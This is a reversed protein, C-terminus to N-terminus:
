KEEIININNEVIGTMANIYITELKGDLQYVIQWVPTLVQILSPKAQGQYGLNILRIRANEKILQNNIITQVASYAPIVQRDSGKNMVELYSQSYGLITNDKLYIELKSDFYPKNNNIQYYSIRSEDSNTPNYTYQDFFNIYKEIKAEIVSRQFPEELLLPQYFKFYIKGEDLVFAGEPTEKETFKFDKNKVQLFQMDPIEKPIEVEIHIGQSLLSEKLEDVTNGSWQVNQLYEREKLYLQYGILINLFLFSVILLSKAKNWDM